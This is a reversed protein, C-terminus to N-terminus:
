RLERRRNRLHKDFDNEAAQFKAMLSDWEENTNDRPILATIKQDILSHWYWGIKQFSFTAMRSVIWLLTQIWTSLWEWLMSTNRFRPSSMSSKRSYPHSSNIATRLLVMWWKRYIYNGLSCHTDWSCGLNTYERGSDKWLREVRDLFWGGQNEQLSHQFDIKRPWTFGWAAWEPGRTHSPKSALRRCCGLTWQYPSTWALSSLAMTPIIAKWISFPMSSLHQSTHGRILRSWERFDGSEDANPRWPYTLHCRSYSWLYPYEKCHHAWQGAEVIFFLTMLLALFMLPYHSRVMRLHSMMGGFASIALPKDALSTLASPRGDIPYIWDIRAKKKGYIVM